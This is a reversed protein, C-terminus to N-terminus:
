PRCRGCHINISQSFWGNIWLGQQSLCSSHRLRIYGGKHALSQEHERIIQYNCHRLIIIACLIVSYENLPNNLSVYFFGKFPWIVPGKHSSDKVTYNYGCAWVLLAVYYLSTMILASGNTWACILSFMFGRTVPRQSPFGGIVASSVFPWYRPFHKWKIVDDQVYAHDPSRFGVGAYCSSTTVLLVDTWFM